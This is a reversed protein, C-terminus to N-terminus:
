DNPAGNSIWAEIAALDSASLAGEPPMLTGNSGGVSVADGRLKHVLYSGDPDNPKVMPLPSNSAAGTGGTGMLGVYAGAADLRPATAGQGHCATTACRPVFVSQVLASFRAGTVTGLPALGHSVEVGLAGSRHCNVCAEVTGSTNLAAHAVTAGTEHCGLCAATQAPVAPEGPQHTASSGSHFISHTENALTPPLDARLGDLLYSKALHCATCNALDNPYRGDDFFKGNMTHPAIGELTAAGAHNGTHVRHNFVKFHISREEIGDLTLDLDVTGAATKPRATRNGFDTAAPSHCQVCYEVQTRAKGHYELRGHCSNCKDQSVVTRRPTAGPGARTANRAYTGNAVSVYVVPNDATERVTESTYPWRFSDNVKNYPVTKTGNRAAQITVAWTGTASLPLTTGFTYVYDTGTVATLTLVNAPDAAATPSTIAGTQPYDGSAGIPMLRISISSLKRPLYSSTAFGPDETPPSPNWPTPLLDGARDALHFRVVPYSGPTMGSVTVVDATLPNYRPALRMPVHVEPLPAYVKSGSVHCGACETDDTRVNGPHALHADDLVTPTGAFWTQPHCGSCIRRSIATQVLYAQPALDHCVACDRLERPFSTGQAITKLNMGGSDARQIVRGFIHPVGAGVVEFKRGIMLTGLSEASFTVPLDRTANLPPAPNARTSPQYLTPLYKGRHIRHVLRALELANPSTKGSPAPTVLVVPDVSEPDANQWTHCTECLKVGARGDHHVVAPGHCRACNDDLVTERVEVAGGDPRFDATTATRLSPKSAKALFLGVRFTHDSRSALDALPTALTYRFRGDGLSTLAAAAESGPQMVSTLFLPTPDSPSGLPLTPILQPGTLLESRWARYGDAPHDDLSALTFRPALALVGDGGLPAGDQTARFTVVVRDHVDVSADEIAVRQGESATATAARSGVQPQQCAAICSAVTAFALARAVGTHRDIM